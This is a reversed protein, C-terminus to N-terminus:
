SGDLRPVMSGHVGVAAWRRMELLKSDGAKVNGSHCAAPVDKTRTAQNPRAGSVGDRIRGDTPKNRTLRTRGKGLLEPLRAFNVAIRRAEDKTLGNAQRAEVETERSYVYAISQGSIV